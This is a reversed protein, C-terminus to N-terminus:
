KLQWKAVQRQIELVLRVRDGLPANRAAGVLTVGQTPVGNVCWISLRACRGRGANYHGVVIGTAPDAKGRIM